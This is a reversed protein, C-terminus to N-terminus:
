GWVARFLAAAGAAVILIIAPSRRLGIAV